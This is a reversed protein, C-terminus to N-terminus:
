ETFKRCLKELQQALVHTAQQLGKWNSKYNVVWLNSDSLLFCHPM